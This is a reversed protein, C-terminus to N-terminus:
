RTKLLNNSELIMLLDQTIKFSKQGIIRKRAVLVLDMPISIRHYCATYAARLVRRARNRIVASGIRKSTIVGLRSNKQTPKQLFNAVFYKSQLRKGHEKVLQFERTYKIRKQCSFSHLRCASQRKRAELRSPESTM